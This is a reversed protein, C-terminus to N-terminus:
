AAHKRGARQWPWSHHQRCLPGELLAAIDRYNTVLQALSKTNQKCLKTEPAIFPTGLLPCIQERLWHQPDDILEEYSLLVSRGELWRHNLVECYGRRISDCYERLATPKIVLETQRREEGPRLLFQRTAIALQHSVYQEALSERYLIIYKADPYAAHLDNLGLQCNALQYLMLKCGRIPKKEGQLNLRIHRMAQQPPLCAQRPGIPVLHCLVEGLVKVEQQQNLYSLLLNSGSRCTAIVFLPQFPQHRRLWWKKQLRLQVNLQRWALSFKSPDVWPRRNAPGHAERASTPM